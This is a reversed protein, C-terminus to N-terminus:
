GYDGRKKIMIAIILFIDFVVRGTDISYQLITFSAPISFGKGSIDIFFPPM